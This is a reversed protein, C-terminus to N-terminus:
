SGLREEADLRELAAALEDADAAIATPQDAAALAEVQARTTVGTLM